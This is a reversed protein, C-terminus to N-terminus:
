GRTHEVILRHVAAGSLGEAIMLLIAVGVGIALSRGFRDGVSASAGFWLWVVLLLGGLNVAKTAAHPPDIAWLASVVGWIVLAALCVFPWPDINPWRRARWHEWGLALGGILLLPSASMPSFFGLPALLAATVAFTWYAAPM